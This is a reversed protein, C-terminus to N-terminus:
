LKNKEYITQDEPKIWCGGVPFYIFNEGRDLLEKNHTLVYTFIKNNHKIWEHAHIAILPSEALWGIKIQNGEKVQNFSTETYFVIKDDSNVPTRDWEIYNSDQYDTSYKAHAFM